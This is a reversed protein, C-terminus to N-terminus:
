NLLSMGNKSVGKKLHYTMKVPIMKGKRKKYIVPYLDKAVLNHWMIYAYDLCTAFPDTFYWFRMCFPPHYFKDGVAVYYKM